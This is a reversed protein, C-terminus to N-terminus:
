SANPLTRLGSHWSERPSLWIVMLLWRLERLEEWCEDSQVARETEALGETCDQLMHLPGIYEKMNIAVQLRYTKGTGIEGGFKSIKKQRARLLMLGTKQDCRKM